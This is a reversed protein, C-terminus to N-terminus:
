NSNLNGGVFRSARGPKTAKLGTRCGWVRQWWPLVCFHWHFTPRIERRLALLVAILVVCMSFHLFIISNASLRDGLKMQQPQFPLVRVTPPSIFNKKSSKWRRRTVASTHLFFKVFVWFRLDFDHRAWHEHFRLQLRAIILQKHTQPTFFDIGIILFDRFTTPTCSHWKSPLLLQLQCMYAPNFWM